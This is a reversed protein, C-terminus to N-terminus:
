KRFKGADPCTAFHPVYADEASDRNEETIPHMSVLHFKGSAGRIYHKKGKGSGVVSMPVPPWDLPVFKGKETEGMLM